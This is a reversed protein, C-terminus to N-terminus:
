HKRSKILVITVFVIIAVILVYTLGGGIAGM